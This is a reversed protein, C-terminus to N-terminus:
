PIPPALWPPGGPAGPPPGGPGREGAQPPGAALEPHAEPRVQAVPQAPPPLDRPQAGQEPLPRLLPGGLFDLGHRCSPPDARRCGGLLSRARGRCGSRATARGARVEQTISFNGAQLAVLQTGIEKRGPRKGAQWIGVREPGVLRCGGASMVDETRTPTDTAPSGGSPSTARSRGCRAVRRGSDGMAQPGKRAQRRYSFLPSYSFLSTNK